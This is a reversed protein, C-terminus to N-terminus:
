GSIIVLISGPCAHPVSLIRIITRLFQPRVLGATRKGIYFSYSAVDQKGVSQFDKEIKGTKLIEPM